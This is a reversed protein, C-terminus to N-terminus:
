LNAVSRVLCAERETLPNGTESACAVAEDACQVADLHEGRLTKAAALNNLSGALRDPARQDRSIATSQEAAYAAEDVKGLPIYSNSMNSFLLARAKDLRHQSALAMAQEYHELSAELRGSWTAAIGLANLTTVTGQLHEMGRMARLAAELNSSADHYSGLNAYSRGLTLYGWGTVEDDGHRRGMHLAVRGLRLATQWESRYYLRQWTPEFVWLLPWPAALSTRAVQELAAVLSPLEADIWARAAQSDELEPMGVAAPPPPPSQPTWVAGPRILAAVRQLVNGYYVLARHIAQHRGSEDHHDAATEAALLRVLDHLRYRGHPLPEILQADALRDLAARVTEAEPEDLMAAVVGPAVDPVHLVGLMRFTRAALEGAPDGDAVLADYSARLSVRVALDDLRLEDLRRSDDALRAAYEAASLGPRTALRGAAIRIALPLGGCLAVIRRAATPEVVPGEIMTGLLALGAPEPLEGVRVRHDADLSPLPHRSTVLVGCGAGGPLLPAVQEKSAANDLVLLLRRDATLSRFLAAAEAEDTPIHDPPEGLRRLFRGLVEVAAPPRLGPTSGGLDVYLQGDPLDAALEHGIRVALASKVIGLSYCEITTDDVAHSGRM